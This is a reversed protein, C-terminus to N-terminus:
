ECVEAILLTGILINGDVQKHIKFKYGLKLSEIFPKIEFFDRPTHHIKLLLTPKQEKLTNVAGRIMDSEMGEIDAKIVSIKLNNKEVIADVTTVTIEEQSYERSELPCFTGWNSTENYYFTASGEKDGVASQFIKINNANNLAIVERIIECNKKQAEVAYVEGSTIKSFMLASDGVFAGLDLINGNKIKSLCELKDIGYKDSYTGINYYNCPLIYNKYAYVNKKIEFIKDHLETRIEMIKKKEFETFIDLHNCSSYFLKELRILIQNITDVSDEDLNKILSMYREFFKEDRLIYEDKYEWMSSREHEANTYYINGEYDCFKSKSFKSAVEAIYVCRLNPNHKKVTNSISEFYMKSSVIIINNDELNDLINEPMISIGFFSKGTKRKDSDIIYKIHEILSPCNELYWKLENGAGYIIMFNGERM